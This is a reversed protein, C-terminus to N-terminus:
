GKPILPRGMLKKLINQLRTQRLQITNSESIIKKSQNSFVPKKTLKAIQVAQYDSSEIFLVANSQSYIESKYEAHNGYRVREEKTSYHMMSLNKYRINNKKLWKETVKRYKELRCTVLLKITETPVVLPKVTSIFKLYKEGDDNEETTPDRCLVGDIDVCSNNLFQHHFINWEFVRPVPCYELYLDVMSEMGPKLYVVGFIINLNKGQQGLLDKAKQLARGSSLSDDIILIKKYKKIDDENKNKSVRYGGGYIKGRLLGDIDTLPKNLHLALLNAALLGSRPIGVILDIDNPVKHSNTVIDNKLDLISKFHIM